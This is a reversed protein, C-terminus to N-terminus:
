AFYRERLMTKYMCVIDQKSHEISIKNRDCLGFYKNLEKKNFCNLVDNINFNPSKAANDRKSFRCNKRNKYSIIGCYNPVIKRIDDYKDESCVVYIFEFAKSYDELQKRLRSLNDYRTKIEYCELNDCVNVIDARSDKIPYEYIPNDNKLYKASFSDKIYSENQYYENLLDTLCMEPNVNGFALKYSIGFFEEFRDVIAKNNGRCSRYLNRTKEKLENETFVESLWMDIVLKCIHNYCVLIM